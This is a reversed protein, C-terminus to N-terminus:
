QSDNEAQERQQASERQAADLQQKVHDLTTKAQQAQQVETSAGVAATTATDALGCGTISAATFGLALIGCTTSWSRSM